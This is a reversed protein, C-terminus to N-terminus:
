RAAGVVLQCAVAVVTAVRVDIGSEDALRHAVRAKGAEILRSKRWGSPRWEPRDPYTLDWSDM